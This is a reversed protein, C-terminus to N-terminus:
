ILLWTKDLSLTYVTLTLEAVPYQIVNMQAKGWFMQSPLHELAVLYSLMDLYNGHVTIEV